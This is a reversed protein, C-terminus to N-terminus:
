KGETAPAELPGVLPPSSPTYAEVAECGSLARIVAMDREHQAQGNKFDLFCLGGLLSFFLLLVCAAFIMYHKEDM